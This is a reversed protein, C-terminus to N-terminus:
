GEPDELRNPPVEAVEVLLLLLLGNVNPAVLPVLVEVGNTNPADVELEFRPVLVITVGM